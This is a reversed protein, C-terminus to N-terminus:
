RGRRDQMCAMMERHFDRSQFDMQREELPKRCELMMAFDPDKRAYCGEIADRREKETMRQDAFERRCDQWGTRRVDRLQRRAERRERMKDELCERLAVRQRWGQFDSGMEALCAERMERPTAHPSIPFPQSDSRMDPASGQQNRGSPPAAPAATAPPNSPPTAQPTTQGSASPANAPPTAQSAAPPNAPPTAQDTTAPSNAAPPNGQVPPTPLNSQAIALGVMLITFGAGLAAKRLMSDIFM